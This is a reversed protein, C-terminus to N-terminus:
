TSQLRQQYKERIATLVQKIDFPKTIIADAQKVDSGQADYGTIVLVVIHRYRIDTKIEKLLGTSWEGALNLDLTIIDPMDSALVRRAAQMSAAELVDYGEEVLLEHLVFRIVPDDDVILVRVM